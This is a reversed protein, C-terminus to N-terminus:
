AVFHVCNNILNINSHQIDLIKFAWNEMYFIHRIMHSITDSLTETLTVKNM